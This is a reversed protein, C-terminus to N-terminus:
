RLFSIKLLSFFSFWFLLFRLFLAPDPFIKCGAEQHLWRKSTTHKVNKFLFQISSKLFVYILRTLTKLWKREELVLVFAVPSLWTSFVMMSAWNTKIPSSIRKLIKLPEYFGYICRKGMRHVLVKKIFSTVTGSSTNFYEQTQNSM